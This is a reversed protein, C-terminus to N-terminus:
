QWRVLDDGKALVRHYGQRRLFDNARCIATRVAADTVPGGWVADEIDQVQARDRSLMYRLLDRPRKQLREEFDDRDWEPPLDDGAAEPPEDKPTRAGPAVRASLREVVARAAEWLREDLDQAFLLLPAADLGAREAATAAAPARARIAEVLAQYEEVVRAAEEAQRVAADRKATRIADDPLVVDDALLSRAREVARQGRGGAERAAPWLEGWRRLNVRLSEFSFHPPAPDHQSAM